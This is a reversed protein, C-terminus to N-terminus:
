WHRRKRELLCSHCQHDCRAQLFWHQYHRERLHLAEYLSWIQDMSMVLSYHLTWSFLCICYCFLSLKICSTEVLVHKIYEIGSSSIGIIWISTMWLLQFIQVKVDVFWLCSNSPSCNMTWSPGRCYVLINGISNSEVAQSTNVTILM